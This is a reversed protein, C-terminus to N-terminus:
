INRNVKWNDLWEDAEKLVKFMEERKEQTHFPEAWRGREKDVLDRLHGFNYSYVGVDNRDLDECEYNVKVWRIFQNAHPDGKAHKHCFYKGAPASFVAVSGCTECRVMTFFQAMKLKNFEVLNTLVLRFNFIIV